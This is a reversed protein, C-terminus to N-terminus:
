AALVIGEHELLWLKTAIGQGGSYGTVRGDAGLVRHCGIVLPVPNSGVARGVARGAKPSGVASGLEGYSTCRGWPIGQLRRWVARQFATGEPALPIDFARREGEFYERLRERASRLVDDAREPLDDRPLLGDREIALSTLSTGDSVLELRGIPSPMRLLYANM